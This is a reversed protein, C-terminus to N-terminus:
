PDEQQKKSNKQLTKQEIKYEGDLYFCALASASTVPAQRRRWTM